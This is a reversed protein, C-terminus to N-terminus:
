PKKDKGKADLPAAVPVNITQSAKASSAGNNDLVILSATYTGAKGYVHTPSTGCYHPSDDGFDWDWGFIGDKPDPDSSAAGDFAVALPNKDKAPAVAFSATPPNNPLVTVSATASKAGNSNDRTTATISATGTSKGTVMGETDVVAVAPNSSTWVVGQNDANGPAIAAALRKGVAINLTVSTEKLSIGTVPVAPAPTEVSVAASQASSLGVRNNASVTFTYRTRPALNSIAASNTFYFAVAKTGNQYVNYSAIGSEPDSSATWNLVVSASTIRSPTLAAPVSPPTIDAPGATVGSRAYAITVKWAVEKIKEATQENITYGYWQNPNINAPLNFNVPNVKYLTIFQTMGDAYNGIKSLHIGDAYWDTEHAVGPVQGLATLRRLEQIVLGSPCIRVTSGPHAKQIGDAIGEFYAVGNPQRGKEFSTDERMFWVQKVIMQLNPSKNSLAYDYFKNCADICAQQPEFFPQIIFRDWTYDTLGRKWGCLSGGKDSAASAEPKQWHGWSGSLQMGPSWACLHSHDSFGACKAFYESHFHTNVTFSNGLFFVRYGNRSEGASVAPAPSVTQGATQGTVQTHLLSAGIVLSILLAKNM